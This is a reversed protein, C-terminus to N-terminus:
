QAFRATINATGLKLGPKFITTGLSANLAGAATDTLTAGVPGVKTYPAGPKVQAQSRDLNLIPVRVDLAPVYATLQNNVTDITFKTVKLSKGNKLNVFKLGGSHNIEGALSAGDIQGGTIYFRYRLALGDATWVPYVWSPYVPLPLIKNAVLAKTTGPDTTLTTWGGALTLADARATAANLGFLLALSLLALVAFAALRTPRTIRHSM